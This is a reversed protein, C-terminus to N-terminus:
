GVRYWTNTLLDYKLRFFDNPLMTTPEGFVLAGNGQTELAIIQNTSNILVEQKDLLSVPVPLMITLDDIVMPPTIILHVDEGETANITVNTDTYQTTFTKQEIFTLNDQMYAQLVSIAAKRADGNTQSYVPLQDGAKVIDLSTLQNITPM